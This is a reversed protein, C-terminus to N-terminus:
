FIQNMLNNIMLKKFLENIHDCVIKPTDGYSILAIYNNKYSICASIEYRKSLYPHVLLCLKNLIMRITSTKGYNNGDSYILYAIKM